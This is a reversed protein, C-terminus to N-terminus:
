GAPRCGRRAARDASARARRGLLAIEAIRLVLTEKVAVGFDQLVDGRELGADQGHLLGDEGRYAGLPVPEHAM